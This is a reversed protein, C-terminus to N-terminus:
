LKGKDIFLYYVYKMTINSGGGGFDDIYFQLYINTSDAKVNFAIEQALIGYAPMPYFDGPAFIIGNVDNWYAQVMPIYGLGHAVTVTTTTATQPVSITGSVPNAGKLMSYKSTLVMEKDTGSKVDVGSASIRIGWDSM